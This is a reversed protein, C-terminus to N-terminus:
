KTVEKTLTLLDNRTENKTELRIPDHVTVLKTGDPFLCEVQIETVLSETGEMVEEKSIIESGLKILDAVSDKGARAREMIEDCIIAITEVYNLKIDNRWRRRAVEAVGFITLREVEKPTLHM